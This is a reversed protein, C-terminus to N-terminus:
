IKPQSDVHKEICFRYRPDMVKKNTVFHLIIRYHKGRISKCYKYMRSTNMKKQQRKRKQMKRTFNYTKVISHKFLSCDEAKRLAIDTKRSRDVFATADKRM